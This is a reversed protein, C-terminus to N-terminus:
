KGTGSVQDVGANIQNHSVLPYFPFPIPIVSNHCTRPAVRAASIQHMNEAM